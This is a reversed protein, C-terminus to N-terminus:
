KNTKKTTKSNSLRAVLIGWSVEGRSAEKQFYVNKVIHEDFIFGTEDGQVFMRVTPFEKSSVEYRNKIITTVYLQIIPANVSLSIPRFNFYPCLKFDLSDGGSLLTYIVHM